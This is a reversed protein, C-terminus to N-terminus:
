DRGLRFGMKRTANGVYAPTAYSSYKKADNNAIMNLLKERAKQEQQQFRPDFRAELIYGITRDILFQPDRVRPIQGASALSPAVSFYQIEISVGSVLTGPNWLMSYGINQDGVIEFWKDSWSYLTRQEPLAEPWPVGNMNNMTWNIPAAAVKYFDVPLSITCPGVSTSSLLTIQPYFWTRNEEWDYAEQWEYQARQMFSIWLTYDASGVAPPTPDQNVTAAIMGMIQTVTEAAM